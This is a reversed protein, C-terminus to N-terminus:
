FINKPNVRFKDNLEKFIENLEGIVALAETEGEDNLCAGLRANHRTIDDIEEHSVLLSLLEQQKQWTSDYHNFISRANDYSRNDINAAIEKLQGASANYLKNLSNNQFFWGFCIVAPIVIMIIISKKM